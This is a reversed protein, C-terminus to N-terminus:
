LPGTRICIRVTLPNSSVDDRAEESSWDLGKWFDCHCVHYTDHLEQAAYPASLELVERM